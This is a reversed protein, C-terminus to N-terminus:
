GDGKGRGRYCCGPLWLYMKQKGPMSLGYRSTSASSARTEVDLYLSYAYKICLTQSSRKVRLHSALSEDGMATVLM